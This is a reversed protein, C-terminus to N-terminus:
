QFSSCINFALVLLNQKGIPRHQHYLNSPFIVVTGEKMDDIDSIKFRTDYGQSVSTGSRTPQIFETQNGPNDPNDNKVVYFMSFTMKYPKGNNMVPPFVEHHNHLSISGSDEYNIFWSKTIFSNDIKLPLYNPRSNLKKILENLTKWVIDEIIDKNNNLIWHEPSGITKSYMRNKHLQHLLRKNYEECKEIKKWYVFDCPFYFIGM